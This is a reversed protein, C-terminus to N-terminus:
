DGTKYLRFPTPGVPGTPGIPGTALTPGIFGIQSTAGAPGLVLISSADEAESSAMDAPWHARYNEKLKNSFREIESEIFKMLATRNAASLKGNVKDTRSYSPHAIQSNLKGNLDRSQGYDPCPEYDPQAFHKAASTHDSPSENGSFFEILSRAHICFSEILANIVTQSVWLCAAGDSLMLYTQRMMRVEYPIHHGIVQVMGEASRNLKEASL